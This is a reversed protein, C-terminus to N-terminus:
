HKPPGKEKKTKHGGYSKKIGNYTAVGVATGAAAFIPVLEPQGIAGAAVVGLGAGTIGALSTGLNESM